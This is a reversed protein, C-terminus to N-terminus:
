FTIDKGKHILPIGYVIEAAFDAKGAIWTNLMGIHKQFKATEPDYEMGDSSIENSVVVLDAGQALIHEIGAQVAQDTDPGAGGELWIENSVLNSLDELLVTTGPNKLNLGALNTFCEATDFNKNKRLEIHRGIKKYAEEDYPYMTAVYVMPIQGKKRHISLCLNEAFESKGSGSGGTVLALM